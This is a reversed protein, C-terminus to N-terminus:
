KKNEKDMFDAAEIFIEGLERVRVSCLNAAVMKHGEIDFQGNRLEHSLRKALKIELALEGKYEVTTMKAVSCDAKSKNNAHNEGRYVKWERVKKKRKIITM